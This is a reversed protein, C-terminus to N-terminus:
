TLVGRNELAQEHSKPARWPDNAQSPLNIDEPSRSEVLTVSPEAMWERFQDRLARNRKTMCDAMQQETPVWRLNRCQQRLAAISIEVRKEQFSTTLRHVSDWLSRADTVPIVELLPARMTAQHSADYMESLMASLFNGYDEAKDLSAAEAALTSRLVRQHRYSRWELLSAPQTGELASKTTAVVVLGGQSKGNPANGFGSDGYAVLMMQDWPISVVKYYAGNTAKVYRLVANIELLDAVTLEAPPKQLLSVDSAIDGRTTGSLWQLSGIGSRFETVLDPHDSLREEPDLKTKTIPVESVYSAQDVMISHDAGQRIRRGVFVFDKSEWAKGWTFSDHVADLHSAYGDLAALILDDVHLGLVATVTDKGNVKEIFLFLCPDLTHATWGLSTLVKRVHIYWRRPANAQGYVPASLRYLLDPRLWEPVAQKSVPDSPPKMFINTPREDDPAGQLFASQCDGNWLDVKNSSAWQLICMLGARSLVPSDRSLLPLHPDRFGAVVIRAKPKFSGEGKPKWRFCVRSRLILSPDIKSTDLYVPKCSSWKQWESWEDVLAQVFKPIEEASMAQWPLEKKLAQKQVRSMPEKAGDAGEDGSSEMVAAEGEGPTQWSRSPYAQHVPADKDMIDDPDFCEESAQFISFRPRTLFGLRRLDRRLEPHAHALSRSTYATISYRDGRFPMTEHRCQPHFAMTQGRAKMLFGPVRQGGINRWVADHPPSESRCEVWLEGGTYDGLQHIWNCSDKLNHNDKHLTARVNKSVFLSTVTGSMGHHRLYELLYKSLHRNDQSRRTVGSFTGHSYLGLALAGSKGKDVASLCGRQATPLNVADLLQHCVSPRFNRAQLLQKAWTESPSRSAPKAVSSTHDGYLHSATLYSSQDFFPQLERPSGDWGQQLVAERGHRRLVDLRQLRVDRPPVSQTTSLNASNPEDNFFKNVAEREMVEDFWSEVLLPSNVTRTSSCRSCVQLDRERVRHQEGCDRCFTPYSSAQLVSAPQEVDEVRTKPVTTSSPELNVDAPRKLGRTVSEPYTEELLRELDGQLSSAAGSTSSMRRSSEERGSTQRSPGSPGSTGSAVSSGPLSERLLPVQQEPLPARQEPLPARQEPLPARQEPLPARQEPVAPLARRGPTPTKSRSRARARPTGPMSRPTPPIVLLPAVLPAQRQLEPPLPTGAADLLPRQMPEPSVPPQSIPSTPQLAPQLASDLADLAARQSRDDPQGEARFALSHKDALDQDSKKLLDLDDQSPAWWEEEGAVDRVQERSCSVLRGRSNRVWLQNQDIAVIAGQRYGEVSGEGDMANKQRFYAVRQGEYFPGRFPRPKRLLANRLANNYEFNHFESMAAARIAEIRQLRESDSALQCAEINGGSSLLAGPLKHNRGFVWQCPSSGSRNLLNNKAFAAMATILNLEAAGVPAFQNVLRQVIYRISQGHRETRGLQYHADAPVYRIQTACQAQLTEFRYGRFCGDADLVVSDPPGFFAMWGNILVRMVEEESRDHLYSLVHYCTAEDVQSLYGHVKGRIDKLWLVDLGLRDNFRQPNFPKAPRPQRPPQVRRCVECQLKRACQVALDSAGAAFLHRVLTPVSPHGLNTHVRRLVQLLWKPAEPAGPFSIDRYGPEHPRMIQTEDIQNAVDPQKHVAAEPQANTVPDLSTDPAKGFFFVAARVPAAFKNASQSLIGSIAEAELRVAGDSLWLAAGRHSAGAQLIDLPLRRQVPTRCVQIRMVEWPVLVKLQEGFPTNVPIIKDPRVKGQLQEDVERLLPLWADEHRNVDLFYVSYNEEVEAHYSTVDEKDSIYHQVFREDGDQQLSDCVGEIIAQALQPTYVQSLGSNGGLVQGHSGQQCLCPLAIRQLVAPLDSMWGTPKKLPAGNKDKLGFRCMCGVQFGVTPLAQLRRVEPHKWFETHAPNELLFHGGYHQSATLITDVMRSIAKGQTARLAQLEAPPYNLNQINTWATCPIEYVLLYPRHQLVCAKLRDFDADADLSLGYVQDVPQLARLGSRLACATIEAHGGYVELVDSRYQRMRRARQARNEYVQLEVQWASRIGRENGLVRKVVGPKLVFAGRDEPLLPDDASGRLVHRHRPQPQHPLALPDRLAGLVGGGRVTREGLGRSDYRQPRVPQGRLGGPQGARVPRVHEAGALQGLGSRVNRHENSRHRFGSISSLEGALNAATTSSSAQSPGEAASNSTIEYGGTSSTCIGALLNLLSALLRPVSCRSGSRGLRSIKRQHGPGEEQPAGEYDERAPEFPNEGSPFGETHSAGPRHADSGMSSRLHRMHSGEHRGSRIFTSGFSPQVDRAEEPVGSDDSGIPSGPSGNHEPDNPGYLTHRFHGAGQGQASWPPGDHLVAPGDFERQLHLADPKKVAGAVASAMLSSAHPPPVAPSSTTALVSPSYFGASCIIDPLESPIHELPWQFVQDGWDDLRVALHGCPSLWLKASCKLARFYVWGKHVDPVAGLIEFARRSLLAPANAEVSSFAIGFPIGAIAAPYVFRGLSEVAENPGFSFKCKDPYEARCLPAIESVKQQHWAEGAVQRQCGTDAIAYASSQGQCYQLLVNPTKYRKPQPEFESLPPLRFHVKKESNEAFSAPDKSDGPATSTLSTSASTMWSVNVAGDADLTLGPM